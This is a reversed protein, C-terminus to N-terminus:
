RRDWVLLDDLTGGDPRTGKATMTLVRGDQSVVFTTTDAHQGGRAFRAEVTYADLRKSSVANAGNPVAGTAPYDKGDAKITYAYTVPAGAGNVGQVTVKGDATWTRTQSKPAPGPNFKSKALNLTWTGIFPDSQATVTASITLAFGVMALVPLIYQRTM